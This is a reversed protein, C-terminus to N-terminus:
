KKIKKYNYITVIFINVISAILLSYLGIRLLSTLYLLAIRVIMGTVTSMMAEKAKGVAILTSTLPVQIYYILFFPAMM